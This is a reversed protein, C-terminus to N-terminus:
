VVSKRDEMFRYVIENSTGDQKKVICYHNILEDAIAQFQKLIEAEVINEEPIDKIEQGAKEQLCELNIKLDKPLLLKSM